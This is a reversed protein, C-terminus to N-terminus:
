GSCGVVRSRWGEPSPFSALELTGGTYGDFLHRHTKPTELPRSGGLTPGSESIFARSLSDGCPSRPNLDRRRRWFVQDSGRFGLDTVENARHMCHTSHGPLPGYEVDVPHLVTQVTVARQDPLSRGSTNKRSIAFRM